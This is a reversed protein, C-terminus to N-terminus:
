NKVQLNVEIEGAKVLNLLVSVSDGLSLDEQLQMLMVHLGGQKFIVTEAPQVLINTKERMGMMGGETEYTEHIQTLAAISSSVGVITDAEALTNTYTFYAASTGGAAAPRIRQDVPAEESELVPETKNGSNCGIFSLSILIIGSILEKM